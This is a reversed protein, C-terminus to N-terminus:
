CSQVYGLQLPPSPLPSMQRHHKNSLLERPVELQSVHDVSSIINKLYMKIAM